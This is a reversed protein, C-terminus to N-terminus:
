RFHNKGIQKVVWGLYCCVAFLLLVVPIFVLLIETKAAAAMISYGAILAAVATIILVVIVLYANKLRKNRLVLSERDTFSEPRIDTYEKRWIFCNSMRGAYEWGFQEYTQHYDSNPFLNLDFVYRINRPKSEHLTIKFAGFRGLKNAAWGQAALNEMLQEFDAPVVWRFAPLWITKKNM